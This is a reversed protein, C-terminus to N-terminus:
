LGVDALDEVLGPCGCGADEEEILQVGDARGAAGRLAIGATGPVAHHILQQSFDVTHAHLFVDKENARGVTWLEQVFCQQPWATEILEDVDRQRVQGRPLSNQLRRELLRGYSGVHGEGENCLLCLAETAGIQSFKALPSSFRGDPIGDGRFLEPCAVVGHVSLSLALNAPLVKLLCKGAGATGHGAIVKGLKVLEPFLKVRHVFIGGCAITAHDLPWVVRDQATTSATSRSGLLLVIQVCLHSSIAMPPGLGSGYACAVDVQM